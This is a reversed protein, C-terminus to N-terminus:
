KAEGVKETISILSRGRTGSLAHRIAAEPNPAVLTMRFYGRVTGSGDPGIETEFIRGNM